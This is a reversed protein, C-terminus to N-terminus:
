RACNASAADPPVPVQETQPGDATSWTAKVPVRAAPTVPLDAVVTNDSVPLTQQTGDALTLTIATTQDPFMGALRVSGPPLDRDCVSVILDGQLARDVDTCGGSGNESLICLSQKAPVLYYAHGSASAGRRALAAAAGGRLQRGAFPAADSPTRNRRFAQYAAVLRQDVGSVPPEPAPGPQPAQAPVTETQAGSLSSSSSFTNTSALAAAAAVVVAALAVLGATLKRRRNKLFRNM